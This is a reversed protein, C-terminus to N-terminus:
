LGAHAAQTRHHRGRGPLDLEDMVGAGARPRFFRGTYCQQRLATDAKRFRPTGQV